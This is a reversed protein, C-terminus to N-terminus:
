ALARLQDADHKERPVLMRVDVGKRGPPAPRAQLVPDALEAVVQEEEGGLLGARALPARVRVGPPRPLEPDVADDDHTDVSLVGLDLLQHARRDGHDCDVDVDDAVVRAITADSLM